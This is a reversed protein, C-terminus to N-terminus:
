KPKSALSIAAAALDRALHAISHLDLKPKEFEKKLQEYKKRPRTEPNMLKDTFALQPELPMDTKSPGDRQTKVSSLLISCLIFQLGM